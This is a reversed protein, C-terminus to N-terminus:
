TWGLVFASQFAVSLRNWRYQCGIGGILGVGQLLSEDLLAHQQIITTGDAAFRGDPVVLRQNKNQVVDVSDIVIM